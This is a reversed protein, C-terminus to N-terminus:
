VRSPYLVRKPKSPPGYLQECRKEFGRTMVDVINSSIIKSYLPNRFEFVLAFRVEVENPHGPVPLFNWECSLYNLISKGSGGMVGASSAARYLLSALMGAPRQDCSVDDGGKSDPPNDDALEVSIRSFPLLM